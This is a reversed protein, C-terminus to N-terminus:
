AAVERREASFAALIEAFDAADRSYVQWLREAPIKNQGARYCPTLHPTRAHRERAARAEDASARAIERPVEADAIESTELTRFGGAGLVPLIAAFIGICALLSLVVSLVAAFCSARASM